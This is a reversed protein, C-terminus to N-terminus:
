KKEYNVYREIWETLEAYTIVDCIDTKVVAPKLYFGKTVICGVVERIPNQAGVFKEVTKINDKLKDIKNKLKKQFSSKKYDSILDIKLNNIMDYTTRTEINKCEIVFLVEQYLLLIDIEGPLEICEKGIIIDKQQINRKIFEYSLDQKCRNFVKEEFENNMLAYVENLSNKLVPDSIQNNTVDMYVNIIGTKLLGLPVILIGDLDLICRRTVKEEFYTKGDLSNQPVHYVLYSIMKNINNANIKSSSSLLTILNERNEVIYEDSCLGLFNNLSEIIVEINAGSFGLINEMVSNMKGMYQSIYNDGSKLIYDYYKRKTDALNEFCFIFNGHSDVEIKSNKLDGRRFEDIINFIKLIATALNLFLAINLDSITLKNQIAKDMDIKKYIKPFIIELANKDKAFLNDFYLYNEAGEEHGDVDLIKIISKLLDDNDTEFKRKRSWLTIEKAYYRNIELISLASICYEMERNYILDTLKDYLRGLIYYLCQSYNKSDIVINIFSLERANEAIVDDDTKASLSNSYEDSVNYKCYKHKIDINALMDKIIILKYINTSKSFEKTLGRLQEIYRM